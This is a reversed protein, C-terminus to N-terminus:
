ITKHTKLTLYKGTRCKYNLYEQGFDTELRKEEFGVQITLLIVEAVFVLVSLWSLLFLLVGIDFVYIGLLMPNRSFHYPGQTMLHRTRPALENNYADFPNGKGVRKMYVISYISLAIGAVALLLAVVWQAGCSPWYACGRGSVLWMLAPVGCVFVLLGLLYGLINRITEM